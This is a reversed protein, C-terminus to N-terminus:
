KKEKLRLIELQYLLDIKLGVKKHFKTHFMESKIPSSGHIINLKSICLNILTLNKKKFFFFTRM